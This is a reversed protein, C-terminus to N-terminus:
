SPRPSAGSGDGLRRVSVVVGNETSSAVVEPRNLYRSDPLIPIQHRALEFLLTGGPRLWRPACTYLRRIWDLGDPGGDLADVPEGDHPVVDLEATPVYPVNATLVDVQGELDVPVGDDVDSECVEPVNARLSSSVHLECAVVRATPCRHAVYAAIAGSGSFLDLHVGPRLSAAVRALEVTQPRPVFVGPEVRVRVGGFDAWGLVHELREGAIRRAILDERGSLLRAEDEAFVCGAARLREVVDSKRLDTGAGPVSRRMFPM